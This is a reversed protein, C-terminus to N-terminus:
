RVDKSPVKAIKRRRTTKGLWEEVATTTPNVFKVFTILQEKNVVDSAEDCLLGFSRVDSFSNTVTDQVVKGLLLFM